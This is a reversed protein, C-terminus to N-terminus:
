GVCWHSECADEKRLGLGLQQGLRNVDVSDKQLCRLLILKLSYENDKGGFRSRRRYERDQHIAVYDESNGM